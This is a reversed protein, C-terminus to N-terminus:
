LAESSPGPHYCGSGTETSQNTREDSHSGLQAAPTAQQETSAADGAPSASIQRESYAGVMLDYVTFVTRTILTCQTWGVM